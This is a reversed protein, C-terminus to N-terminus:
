STGTQRSGTVTLWALHALTAPSRREEYDCLATGIAAANRQTVFWPPRFRGRLPRLPARLVTKEWHLLRLSNHVSGIGSGATQYANGPASGWPIQPILFAAGCWLNVGICGYRLQAIATDIESACSRLTPPAGIIHAALDGALVDNCFRVADRLYNAPDGRIETVALLPSFAEQTFLPESSNAADLEVISPPLYNGDAKGFSRLATRGGALAHFREVSGPYYAARPPAIRMIREIASMLAGRQEWHAPLVLVQLAICNCGNNHLKASVIAEAAYEVDRESWCGPLVIAPTVNGLEATIPKSTEAAIAEYTANSGTVHVEDVLPSSCLSAGEGPGGCTTALYGADILPSLADNVIPM